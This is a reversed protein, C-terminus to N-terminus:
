RMPRLSHQWHIGSITGDLVDKIVVPIVGAKVAAPRLYDQGVIGASRPTEGKM